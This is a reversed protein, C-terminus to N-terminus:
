SMMFLLFNQKLFNKKRLIKNSQKWWGDSVSGLFVKHYSYSKVHRLDFCPFWQPSSNSYILYIYFALFIPFNWNNIVSSPFLSPFISHCLKTFYTLFTFVLFIIKCIFLLVDFFILFPIFLCFIISFFFSSKFIFLSIQFFIFSSMNLIKWWFISFYPHFLLLSFISSDLVFSFMWEFSLALIIYHLFFFPFFLYFLSFAVFSYNELILFHMFNITIVSSIFYFIYSCRM